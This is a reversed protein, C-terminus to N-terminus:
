SVVRQRTLGRDRNKFAMRVVPLPAHLARAAYKQAVLLDRTLVVHRLVAGRERTQAPIDSTQFTGNETETSLSRRAHREAMVFGIRRQLAAQQATRQVFHERAPRLRRGGGAK